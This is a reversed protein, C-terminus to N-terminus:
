HAGRSSAADHPRAGSARIWPRRVAKPDETAWRGIPIMRRHKSTTLLSFVKNLVPVYGGVRKLLGRLTNADQVNDAVFANLTQGFVTELVPSYM